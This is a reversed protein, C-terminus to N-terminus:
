FRLQFAGLAPISLLSPHACLFSRRSLFDELFPTCLAFATTHPGTRPVLVRRPGSASAVFSAAIKSGDGNVRLASVCAGRPLGNMDGGSYAASYSDDGGTGGCIRRGGTPGHPKPTRGQCKWV